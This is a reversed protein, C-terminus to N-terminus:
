HRGVPHLYVSDYNESLTQLEKESMTQTNRMLDVYDKRSFLWFCDTCGMLCLEVLWFVAWCWFLAWGILCLEVLWFLAYVAWLDSCLDVLWFCTHETKNHWTTLYVSYINQLTNHTILLVYLLTNRNYITHGVPDYM